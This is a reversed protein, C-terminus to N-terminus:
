TEGGSGRPWEEEPMQVDGRFAALRRRRTLAFGEQGDDGDRGWAGPTRGGRSLPRSRVPGRRGGGPNTMAAKRRDAAQRILLLSALRHHNANEHLCDALDAAHARHDHARPRNVGSSVQWLSNAPHWDPLGDAPPGEVIRRDAVEDDLDKLWPLTRVRVATSPPSTTSNASTWLGPFTERPDRGGGRSHMRTVGSTCRRASSDREAPPVSV